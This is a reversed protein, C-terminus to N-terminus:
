NAGNASQSLKRKPGLGADSYPSRDPSDYHAGNASLSSPRASRAHTVVHPAQASAGNAGFHSAREDSFDGAM